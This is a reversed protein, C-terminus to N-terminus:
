DHGDDGDDGDGGDGGDDGDDEDNPVYRVEGADEPTEMVVTKAGPPAGPVDALSVKVERGQSDRLSGKGALVNQLDEATIGQLAGLSAAPEDTRARKAAPEGGEEHDEDGNELRTSADAKKDEVVEVLGSAVNQAHAKEMSKSVVEASPLPFGMRMIRQYATKGVKQIIDRALTLTPVTWSVRTAGMLARRQDNYKFFRLYTTEMASIKRRLSSIKATQSETERSYNDSQEFFKSLSREYDRRQKDVKKISEVLRKIDPDNLDPNLSMVDTMVPSATPDQAEVLEKHQLRPTVQKMCLEMNAREQDSIETRLKDKICDRIRRLEALTLEGLKVHAGSKHLLQLGDDTVNVFVPGPKKSSDAPPRGPPRGTRKAPQLPKPKAKPANASPRLIVKKKGGDFLSPHAKHVLTGDSAFSDPQFHGKCVRLTLPRKTKADMEGKRWNNKNTAASIITAWARHNDEPFTFMSAAPGTTACGPVCCTITEEGSPDAADDAGSSNYIVKVGGPFLTPVAEPQILGREDFDSQQFHDECLLKLKPEPANIDLDPFVAELVSTWAVRMEGEAPFTCMRGHRRGCGPVVCTVDAPVGMPAGEGGEEGEVEELLEAEAAAIDEDEDLVNPMSEAAQKVALKM